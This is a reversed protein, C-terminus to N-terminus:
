EGASNFRERVAEEFSPLINGKADYMATEHFEKSIAQGLPKCVTNWNPKIKRFLGAIDQKHSMKNRDYPVTKAVEKKAVKKKVVEKEVVEKEVVEKEVVEKEVVEEKVVEKKAIEKKVVEKKAVVKKAVVKKAVEKVVEAEGNFFRTATAKLEAMATDVDSGELEATLLLEEPEYQAVQVVKRFAITTIRM